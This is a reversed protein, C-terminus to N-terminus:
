YHHTGYCLNVPVKLGVQVHPVNDWTKHWFISGDTHEAQLTPSMCVPIFCFFVVVVFLNFLYIFALLCASMLLTTNKEGGIQRKRKRKIQRAPDKMRMCVSVKDSQHVSMCFMRRLCFSLSCVPIFRFSVEKARPAVVDTHLSIRVHACLCGSSTASM